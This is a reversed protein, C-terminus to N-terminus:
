RPKSRMELGSGGHVEVDIEDWCVAIHVISNEEGVHKFRQRPWEDQYKTNNSCPGRSPNFTGGRFFEGHSFLFLNTRHRFKSCDKGVRTIGGDQGAWQLVFEVVDASIFLCFFLSPVCLLLLFNSSNAVCVCM